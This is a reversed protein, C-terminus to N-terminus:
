SKGPLVIHLSGALLRTMDPYLVCGKGPQQEQHHFQATHCVRSRVFGPQIARMEEKDAVSKCSSTQNVTGSSKPCDSHLQCTPFDQSDKAPFEWGWSSQIMAQQLGLITRDWSQDRVGSAAAGTGAQSSEESGAM